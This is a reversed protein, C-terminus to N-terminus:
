GTELEMTKIRLEEGALRESQRSGCPCPTYHAPTAFEAGCSRCRARGEVRIIELAAGEMATGEAAVEFCFAIAEALVGSLAGIEVTVRTVPRGDAAESVIGVINRAIGLEHM